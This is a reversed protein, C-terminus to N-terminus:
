PFRCSSGQLDANAYCLRTGPAHLQPTDTGVARGWGTDRGWGSASPRSLSLAAGPHCIEKARHAGTPPEPQAGTSWAPRHLRPSAAARRQPRPQLHPLDPADRSATLRPNFRSPYLPVPSRWSARACEPVQQVRQVPVRQATNVPDWQCGKPISMNEMKRFSRLLRGGGRAEGVPKCMGTGHPSSAAWLPEPFLNSGVRPKTRSQVSSSGKKRCARRRESCLVTGLM